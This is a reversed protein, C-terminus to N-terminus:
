NMKAQENFVERVVERDDFHHRVGKVEQYTEHGKGAILVVDGKQAMMCATRIAERRNTIAVVKIRDAFAVGEMMQRIIEDPEESRPNDSTLIVRTSGKVAEAAMVPRKGNDRDGGAGVVTILQQAGERIANITEIVNKLADPTHAYDVVATVGFVSRITEFRGDVPQLASLATLVEDREHGMLVAAGYVALLNQVNFHGVFSTWLEKGDMELQMGEFMAEVVRGRFDAMSRMSYTYKRAKTNQLMVLGNKDDANVIAFAEASLGDFFAKKAKLYADFTLHYDLHDRTLNTFIAGEFKLGAIRHQDVAHSSVEMFCYDCGAAVMEAMMRNLNVADPTTHTADMREDVIYNAVTSFLGAKYGLQMTLRYLLTAITTKGNTGTVGVLKLQASPHDYFASALEGLAKSSNEVQVYVVSERLSQPLQECVVAVVGADIAKDIYLHGDTHTGRTAVFLVGAAARRSDFEIRSVMPDMAGVRRSVEVSQLLYSLQKEM